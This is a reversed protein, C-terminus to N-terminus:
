FFEVCKVSDDIENALSACKQQIRPIITEEEEEAVLAAVVVVVVVFFPTKLPRSRPCFLAPGRHTADVDRKM